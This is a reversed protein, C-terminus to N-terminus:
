PVQFEPGVIGCNWMGHKRLAAVTAPGCVGDTNLQEGIANLSIQVRRWFALEARADIDFALCGRARLREFIVDGPDGRGRDAYGNPYVARKEPSLWEPFMWANSRHGFVGVVDPGGQKLREVIKGRQYPRSDTQLPIGIVDCLVLVLEVTTALTDEYIGGDPEQVMEIGISWPNVKTAHYAEAHLLDVLCAILNGDVILPAGGSTANGSWYRAVQAARTGPSPPSDPRIIQPDKGQTTHITIQRVWSTARKRHDRQSM